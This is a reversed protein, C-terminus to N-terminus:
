KISKKELEIIKEKTEKYSECIKEWKQRQIDNFKMTSSSIHNDITSIMEKLYNNSEDVIMKLFNEIKASYTEIIMDMVNDMLSHSSFFFAVM